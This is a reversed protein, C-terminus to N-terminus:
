GILKEILHEWIKGDGVQATDGLDAPQQLLDPTVIRQPPPDALAQDVNVILLLQWPGVSQSSTM